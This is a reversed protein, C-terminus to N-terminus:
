YLITPDDLLKLLRYMELYARVANDKYYKIYERWVLERAQDVTIGKIFEEKFIHNSAGIGPIGPINDQADGILMQQYLKFDGYYETEYTIRIDTVDDPNIYSKAQSIIEHGIELIVNKSHRHHKGPEMLFDKDDSVMVVDYDEEYHNKAIIIADDAEAGNVVVTNKKRTLHDRIIDYSVPKERDKRNGKYEKLTAIRYRFNNEGSLFLITQPEYHKDEIFQIWEDTCIRADIDTRSGYAHPAYDADILLLTPKKTM